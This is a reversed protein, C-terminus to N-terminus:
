MHQNIIRQLEHLGALWAHVPLPRPCLSLLPCTLQQWMSALKLICQSLGDSAIFINNSM